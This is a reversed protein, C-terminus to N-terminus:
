NSPSEMSIAVARTITVDVMDGKNLSAAFERMKPNVVVSGPTGDPNIFTAVHSDSDYNIFEVVSNVVSAAVMGPKEGEAARGATAAATPTSSSDANAIHAVVEEYYTISLIDGIKIQDFNRVEPGAVAVVDEGDEGRLLVERTNYDVARIQATVTVADERKAGHQDAFAPLSLSVAVVAAAFLSFLRIM